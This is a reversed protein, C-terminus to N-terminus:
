QDVSASRQGWSANRINIMRFLRQICVLTGGFNLSYLSIKAEWFVILQPNALQKPLWLNIFSPRSPFKNMTFAGIHIENNGRLNCEKKKKHMFHKRKRYIGEARCHNIRMISAYFESPSIWLISSLIGPFHRNCVKGRLRSLKFTWTQASPLHDGVDPEDLILPRTLVFYLEQRQVYWYTESYLFVMDVFFWDIWCYYITNWALTM